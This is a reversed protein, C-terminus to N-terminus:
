SARRAAPCMTSRTLRHCGITLEVQDHEAGGPEGARQGPAVGRQIAQDAPTLKRMTSPLQGRATM